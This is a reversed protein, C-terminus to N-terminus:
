GLAADLDVWLDDVHEIGVSLRLLSEPVGSDRDGAHRARREILSEVGGLSTGHTILRVRDCVADAAARRGPRSSASWRASGPTSAAPARTGRTRPCAPTASALWARIPRSGSPWHRQTPRPATSGCVWRECAACRWIPTSRRRQHWGDHHAPRALPHDPRRRTRRARRRARRLARGPVQHGLAHRHRRRSRAPARAAAVHVHCRCRGSRRARPRSRDARASRPRRAASQDGDRALAVARGALAALVADTDTIDVSRVEMRGLRQQEGFIAVTGSYAARPVVAVAGVPQAEAVAAIAAMGSAFALVTGGELAGVAQEFALVTPNGENRAYGNTEGANRFPASLVIPPNVPDGAAHPRGAAVVLSEPHLEVM